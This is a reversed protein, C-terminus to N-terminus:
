GGRTGTKSTEYFGLIGRQSNYYSRVERDTKHDKAFYLFLSPTWYKTVKM